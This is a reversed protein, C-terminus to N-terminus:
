AGTTADFLSLSAGPQNPRPPLRGLLELARQHSESALWYRMVETPCGMYGPVTEMRRHLIVGMGQLTAVTSHLCHDHLEREAQFRNFSHGTLFAELVRKWKLPPRTRTTPNRRLQYESLGTHGGLEPAKTKEDRM